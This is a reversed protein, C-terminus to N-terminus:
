ISWNSTRSQCGLLSTSLEQGQPLSKTRKVASVRFHRSHLALTGKTSTDSFLKPSQYRHNLKRQTTSQGINFPRSSSTAVHTGVMWEARGCALGSVNSPSQGSLNTGDSIIDDQVTILKTTTIKTDVLLVESRINSIKLKEASFSILKSEKESAM